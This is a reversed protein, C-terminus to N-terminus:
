RFNSVLIVDSRVNGRALALQKGDPSWSFDFIQESNFNTLQKAPGGTLKREWINGIGNTTQVYEIAQGSPAWRPNGAMAPWADQFVAPGGESRMVKLQLPESASPGIPGQISSAAWTVYAVQKGDPSLAVEPWSTSTGPVSDHTFVEPTVQGTIPVRVPIGSPSQVYM